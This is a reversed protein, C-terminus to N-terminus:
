KINKLLQYQENNEDIWQNIDFKTSKKSNLTIKNKQLLLTTLVEELNLDELKSSKIDDILYPVVGLGLEVIQNTKESTEFKKNEKISEYKSPIEVMYNKFADAFEKTTAWGYSLDESSYGSENIEKLNDKSISKTYDYIYNQEMIKEIAMAYIYEYLGSEESNVIKNYLPLVAPIGLDILEQYSQNNKVIEYPNSSYSLPDKETTLQNISRQINLTIKNVEKLNKAYVTDDKMIAKSVVVLLVFILLISSVIIKINKKM